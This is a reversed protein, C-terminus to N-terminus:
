PAEHEHTDEIGCLVLLNCPVSRRISKCTDAHLGHFTVLTSFVFGM